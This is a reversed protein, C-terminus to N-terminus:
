RTMDQWLQPAVASFSSPPPGNSESEGNEADGDADDPESESEDTLLIDADAMMVFEQDAMRSSSTPDRDTM